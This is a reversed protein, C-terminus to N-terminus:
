VKEATGNETQPVLPLEVTIHAGQQPASQISVAGGLLRARERIGQLGFHDGKVAAPDFGVGWDQVDLHVRGDAQRLEVRVKKSQSYRCANTLCEQVIRFLASELPPALRNFEAEHVFEIEPGGHRQHEDILCDVAAVVGLEDLVPPRLGSILRRTEAMAERLLRVSEDFMEQAADPDRDRLRGVSEFKYLAGTLQQALGDHIEYAVLKREREHLDLMERLLRREQHVAEEARKRETIDRGEPILFVVKGTEDKVPKLSFDIWHLDGNAARHTAEMRVFEGDAAKRVAQRLKEQLGPSHTWWPTEWFPKNLVSAESVGSFALAPRNAEMVIGEPTLLGIFQFTQDLVARLKRENEGLARTREAVLQEIRATRGTLLWFYGALLGTIVLGALLAGIPGCSRQRARYARTPVCDVACRGNAVEVSGPMHIGGASSAASADTPEIAGDHIHLSKLHDICAEGGGYSPEGIYIDIGVPPFVSLSTEVFTSIRFVGLVFGDIEPQDAPRKAPKANENWAPEVVFLLLRRDTQPGDLPPCIFAAKRRNSMAERIAARCGAHSGLDFGLLSQIEQFPEVFLVPYYENRQGAPVLRGRDDRQVIEYKPFGENRVAQEHTKRRAAPIRPVWALAHLDPQKETIPATFTRFEKREVLQSGCFFASITSVTGLRDVVARQIAEIQRGADFNFQVETLKQERALLRWGLLLSLAIGGLTVSLSLALRRRHSRRAAADVSSLSATGRNVDCGAM